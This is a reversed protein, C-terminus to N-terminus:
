PYSTDQFSPGFSWSSPIRLSPSKTGTTSSILNSTLNVSRDYGPGSPASRRRSDAEQERTVEIPPPMGVDLLVVTEGASLRQLGLTTSNAAPWDKARSLRLVSEILDVNQECSDNFLALGGDGHRYTLLIRSMREIAGALGSPQREGAVKLANRALILQCMADLHVSPSREIHSGDGLIQNSLARNLIAVAKDLRRKGESLYLGSYLLGVAAALREVGALGDDIAHSLHATQAGLSSIFCREFGM